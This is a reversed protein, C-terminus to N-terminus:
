TYAYLHSFRISAHFDEFVLLGRTYCPVGVVRFHVDEFFVAGNIDSVACLRRECEVGYTNFTLPSCLHRKPNFRLFIRLHSFREGGDKTPTGAGNKFTADVPEKANLIISTTKLFEIEVNDRLSLV